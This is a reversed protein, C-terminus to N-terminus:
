RPAQDFDYNDSHDRTLSQPDFVRGVLQARDACPFCYYLQIGYAWREIGDHRNLCRGADHAGADECWATECDCRIEEALEFAVRQAKTFAM